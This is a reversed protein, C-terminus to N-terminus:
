DDRPLKRADVGKEVLFKVLQTCRLKYDHYFDAFRWCEVEVKSADAGKFKLVNLHGNRAAGSLDVKSVDAGKEV